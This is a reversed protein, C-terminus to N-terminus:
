RYGIGERRLLPIGHQLARRLTPAFREWAAYFRGRGAKGLRCAGQQIVFHDPRLWRRRFLDLAFRDVAPRLPEILDCALSERSYEAAHLFGICPDFGAALLARVADFHLLTYGLSLLANLPDTPPRRKRGSFGLSEPLVAALAAFYLAAAGGEIGRIQGVSLTADERLRRALGPLTRLAERLEPATATFGLLTRRQSHLKMRVLVAAIRAARVPNCAAQYQALRLAHDRGHPPTVIATRRHDRPSLILLAIGAESLAALLSSHLDVAATVVVREVMPLPIHQPRAGDPLAIRIRGDRLSLSSGKRDIILTQM